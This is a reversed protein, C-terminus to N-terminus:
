GNCKTLSYPGAVIDTKDKLGSLRDERQHNKCGM